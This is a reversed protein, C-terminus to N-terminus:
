SEEVTGLIGSIIQELYGLTFNVAVEWAGPERVTLYRGVRNNSM